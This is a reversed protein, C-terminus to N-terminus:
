NGGKLEGTLPDICNLVLTDGATNFYEVQWGQYYFEDPNLIISIECANEVALRAEAGGNLEAIQLADEFSIKFETQDIVQWRVRQPSYKTIHGVVSNRRPEIILESVFRSERDNMRAEKFFEINADQPGNHLYACDMGYSMRDLQWTELSEGWLLEHLAAAIRFYDSTSWHVPTGLTPSAEFPTKDQPTFVDTKGQDLAALITGPDISFYENKSYVMTEPDLIGCSFTLSAILSVLIPCILWKRVRKSM